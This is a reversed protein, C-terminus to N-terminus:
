GRLRRHQRVVADARREQRHVFRAPWPPRCWASAPRRSTTATWNAFKTPVKDYFQAFGGASMPANDELRFSLLVAKKIWQNVVWDKGQKEAV